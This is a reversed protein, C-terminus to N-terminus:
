GGVSGQSRRDESLPILDILENSSSHIGEIAESAGMMSVLVWMRAGGSKLSSPLRSLMRLSKVVLQEGQLIM